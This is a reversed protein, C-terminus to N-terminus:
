LTNLYKNFEKRREKESSKSGLERAVTVNCIFMDVNNRIEAIKEPDEKYKDLLSMVRLYLLRDERIQYGAVKDEKHNRPSSRGPSHYGQRANQANRPSAYFNFKM